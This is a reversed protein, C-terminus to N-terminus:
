QRRLPQVVVAGLTLVAAALFSPVAYSGTEDRILGAVLPGLMQGLGFAATMLGMSRRGDGASRRAAEQLGLATLGMFTGGLAAAAIGLAAPGTAVASLAVGAAEIGMALQYAAITGIRKGIETWLWVSPLASIGVILWVTAEAGRGSASERLIAVIFTATIVYGFGMCGYAIVLPWIRKGGQSITPKPAAAPAAPVLAAVAPVALVTLIGGSLWVQRWADDDAVLPSAIIASLAIGAGVGGFHLASWPQKGTAQLRAVILASGLVLAFASAAGGALRILCWLWVAETGAMAATTLGSLALAALLGARPDAVTNPRSALLAGLLYGAFNASAVLGAAAPGLGAEAMMPIAPTYIFRGIGMAAALAVMGGVALALANPAAPSLETSPQRPMATDGTM